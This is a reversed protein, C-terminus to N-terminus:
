KEIRARFDASEWEAKYNQHSKVEIKVDAISLSNGVDGLLNRLEHLVLRQLDAQTLEIQVRM